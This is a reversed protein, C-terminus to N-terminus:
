SRWRLTTGLANGSGWRHASPPRRMSTAGFSSATTPLPSSASVKSGLAARVVSSRANWTVRLSQFPLCIPFPVVRIMLVCFFFFCFSYFGDSFSSVTLPWDYFSLRCVPIQKEPRLGRNAKTDMAVWRGNRLTRRIRLWRTSRVIDSFTNM